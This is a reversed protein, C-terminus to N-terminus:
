LKEALQEYYRILEALQAKIDISPNGASKRLKRIEGLLRDSVSKRGFRREHSSPGSQDKLPIALAQSEVAELLRESDRESSAIAARLIRMALKAQEKMGAMTQKLKESDRLEGETIGGELYVASFVVEPVPKTASISELNGRPIREVKSAGPTVPEATAFGTVGKRTPHQSTIITYAYISKSSDNVFAIEIDGDNLQRVSSIRVSSTKTTVRPQIPQSPQSSRSLLGLRGASAGIVLLAICGLFIAVLSMKSFM